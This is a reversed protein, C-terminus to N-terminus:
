TPTGATLPKEIMPKPNVPIEFKVRGQTDRGFIQNKLMSKRGGGGRKRKSKKGSACKACCAKKSM